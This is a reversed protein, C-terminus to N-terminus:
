QLACVELLASKFDNHSYMKNIDLIIYYSM